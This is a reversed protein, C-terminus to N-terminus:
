KTSCICQFVLLALGKFHFCFGPFVNSFSLTAAPQGSGKEIQQAPQQQTYKKGNNTSSYPIYLLITRSLLSSCDQEQATKRVWRPNHSDLVRSIADSQIM